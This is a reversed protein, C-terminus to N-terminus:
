SKNNATILVIELLESVLYLEYYMTANFSKQDDECFVQCDKFLASCFFEGNIHSDEEEM